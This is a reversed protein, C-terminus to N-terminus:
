FTAGPGEEGLPYRGTVMFPAGRGEQEFVSLADIRLPAACVEAALPALAARVRGHEPEALRETLTMHFRFFEFVYPYGFRVLYADQAPTLDSQRRRALEAEGLPARLHDLGEVCAAALAELEPARRAPVLALFGGLSGLELQVEFPRMAAALEAVAGHVAEADLREAATFPAKLTGHFGYHRPSATIEHLRAPEIGPLHPQEKVSDDYADRGLIRAGFGALASGAPPAFYVAYRM